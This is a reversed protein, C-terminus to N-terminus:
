VSNKRKEFDSEVMIRVLDKFTTTPTWELEQKAKSPDGILLDVETPRFYRPDIEVVVRGSSKLIGIENEGEGEWNIEERLV